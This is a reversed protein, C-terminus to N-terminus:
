AGFGGGVEKRWASTRNEKEQQMKDAKRDERGVGTNCGLLSIWPRQSGSVFCLGGRIKGGSCLCAPEQERAGQGGGTRGGKEEQHGRNM